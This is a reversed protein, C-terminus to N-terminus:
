GNAIVSAPVISGGGLTAFGMKGAPVGVNGIILTLGDSGAKIQFGETSPEITLRKTGNAEVGHQAVYDTGSFDWMAYVFLKQGNTQTIGITPNEGDMNWGSIYFYISNADSRWPIINQWGSFWIGSKGSAYKLKTITENHATLTAEDAELKAEVASISDSLEADGAVRFGDIKTIRADLRDAENTLQEYTAANPDTGGNGGAAELAADLDFKSRDTNFGYAM